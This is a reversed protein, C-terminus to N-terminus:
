KPELTLHIPDPPTMPAAPALPPAHCRYPVKPVSIKFITCIEAQEHWAAGRGVVGGVVGLSGMWRM